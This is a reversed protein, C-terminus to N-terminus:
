LINKNIKFSNRTNKAFSISINNSGQVGSLVDTINFTITRRAESTTPVTAQYSRGGISLTLVDTYVNTTDNSTNEIVVEVQYVESLDRTNYSNSFSSSKVDSNTNFIQYGYNTDYELSKYLNNREKGIAVRYARKKSSSLYNITDELNANGTINEGLM